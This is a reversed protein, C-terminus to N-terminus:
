WDVEKEKSSCLEGCDACIQIYIYDKLCGSNSNQIM